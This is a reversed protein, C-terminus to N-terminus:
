ALGNRKRLAVFVLYFVVFVALVYPTLDKVQKKERSELPVSSFFSELEGHSYINGNVSLKQMKGENYGVEEIEPRYNVSYTLGESSYFGTSNPDLNKEFRNESVRTFGEREEESVMVFDDGLRNGEVWLEKEDPRTSWSFTRGVLGPEESMLRDLNQGGGSFVAVKGLGYRWTTLFPRGDAVSVLMSASPKVETSNVSSVSSRVDRRTIFHTSDTVTLPQNKQSGGGAEFNFELESASQGDVYYGGPTREAIETMFEKEEEGIQQPYQDGVGVTILRANSREAELVTQRRVNNREGLTSIKGDAILVINGQSYEARRLMSDAARLGRNHFTPGQPQLSSIKDKVYARQRGVQVPDVIDYAYRNYAVVGVRTNAPLQDVLEYAIRKGEQAAGSEETGTSIDITLVVLPADTDLDEKSETVPLYDQDYKSGTYVLGGGEIVYDRLDSDKVSKKLLVNDYEELNSPVRDFREVNYFEELDKELGGVGGISAVKPKERIEVAKYYNNNETYVDDQQTEVWLQKTGEEEFVPNFEYPADGEYVTSNGIGVKIETNNQTSSAVAKFSNEAGIVTESPGEIKVAHEEVTKDRYINSSINNQEFYTQLGGVEANLDSDILITDNSDTVSKIQSKVDSRDSNVEKIELNANESETVRNKILQSSQSSDQIVKVEPRLDSQNGATIQPGAASVVLLIAAVINLIGLIKKFRSFKVIKPAILGIVFILVLTEPNQFTIM